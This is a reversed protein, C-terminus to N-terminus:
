ATQRRHADRQRPAIQLQMRAAEPDYRALTHHETWRHIEPAAVRPNYLIVALM